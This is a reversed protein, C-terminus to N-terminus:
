PGEAPNVAAVTGESGSGFIEELKHLMKTVISLVHASSAPSDRLTELNKRVKYILYPILSITAYAEGELLKQALMFPKLTAQLDAVIQWQDASLNCTLDGEEEMLALYNKLRLLRDCMSFTSWWRTAVDQIPKVAREANQKGLLKAMAQSSSNFFSILTRCATMTGESEALDKFAIGTVLELLHDVCGHWKSAGGNRASNEVFKRGASIMTAETDTVVAVMAKYTLDFLLMQREVYAVTDNATSPGDKEFIGLVLSHLQWTEKNIFHATCTTYGHNAVSTWSDTTLAFYRKHLIAKVKGQVTLYELQLMTSLKERSLVPAKKNLSHCLLRFSKEEVCRIPQYTTVAWDILCQEFDPCSVVFCDISSQSGGQVVPVRKKKVGAKLAEQFFRAHHRKIHRELMGTSHTASYFVDKNCLLCLAHSAKIDPLKKFHMWVWSKKGKRTLSSTVSASSDIEIYSELAPPSDVDGLDLEPELIVGLGECSSSSSQSDFDPDRHHNSSGITSRASPM